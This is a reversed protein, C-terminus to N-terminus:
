ALGVVAGVISLIRTILWRLAHWVALVVQQSLIITCLILMLDLPSYYNLAILTHYFATYPHGITGNGLLYTLADAPTPAGAPWPIQHPVYSFAWQGLSVAQGWIWVFLSKFLSGIGSLLSSVLGSFDIDLFAVM